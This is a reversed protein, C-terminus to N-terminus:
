TVVYPEKSLVFRLRITQDSRMRVSKTSESNGHLVQVEYTGAPLDRFAFVGNANTQMEREGAFCDCRLVLLAGQLPEDTESDLVDGKITTTGESATVEEIVSPPPPAFAGTACAVSLAGLGVWCLSRVM